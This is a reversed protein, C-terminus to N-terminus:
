GRGKGRKRTSSRVGAPPAQSKRPPPMARGQRPVAAQYGPTGDPDDDDDEDDGGGGITDDNDNDDVVVQSTERSRPPVRPSRIGYGFETMQSRLRVSAKSRGPFSKAIETWKNGLQDVLGKLKATDEPSWYNMSVGRQGGPKRPGTPSETATRTASPSASQNDCHTQASQSPRRSRSIPQQRPPPRSRSSVPRSSAPASSPVDDDDDNEGSGHSSDSEDDDDKGVGGQAQKRLYTFRQGAQRSSIYRRGKDM